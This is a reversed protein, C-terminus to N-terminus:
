LLPNDELNPSEVKPFMASLCFIECEVDHLTSASMEATMAEILCKVPQRSSKSGDQIDKGPPPDSVPTDKEVEPNDVPLLPNSM